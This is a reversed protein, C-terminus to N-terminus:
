QVEENLLFFMSRFCFIKGKWTIIDLDITIEAMGLRLFRGRWLSDDTLVSIFLTDESGISLDYTKEFPQIRSFLTNNVVLENVKLVMNTKTPNQGYNIINIFLGKILNLDLHSLDGCWGCRVSEILLRHNWGNEIVFPYYDVSTMVVYSADYIGDKGEKNQDAGHFVDAGNHGDWHNGGISYSGNWFNKSNDFANFATSGEENRINNNYIHNNKSTDIFLGFDNNHTIENLFVNNQTANKM